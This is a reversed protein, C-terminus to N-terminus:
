VNNNQAQLIEEIHIKKILGNKYYEDFSIKYIKNDGISNINISQVGDIEINEIGEGGEIIIDNIYMEDKSGNYIILDQILEKVISGKHKGEYKFFRNNVMREVILPTCEMKRYNYYNYVILALILCITLCIIGLIVRKTKKKM